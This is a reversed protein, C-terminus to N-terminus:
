LHNFLETFLYWDPLNILRFCSGWGAAVIDWGPLAKNGADHTDFWATLVWWTSRPAYQCRFSTLLPTNYIQPFVLIFVFLPYLYVHCMSSGSATLM